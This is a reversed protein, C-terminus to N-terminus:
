RDATAIGIAANRHGDFISAQPSHLPSFTGLKTHTPCYPGHDTFAGCYLTPREGIPWRCTADTLAMIDIPETGPLPQFSAGFREFPHTPPLVEATLPRPQHQKKKAVPTPKAAVRKQAVKEKRMSRGLDRQRENIAPPRKTVGARRSKSQVSGKTTGLKNAIETCSYGEAWLERFKALTTANWKFPALYNM